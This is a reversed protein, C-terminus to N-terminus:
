NSPHPHYVTSSGCHWRRSYCGTIVSLQFIFRSLSHSRFVVANNVPGPYVRTNGIHCTWQLHHTTTHVFCLSHVYHSATYCQIVKNCHDGRWKSSELPRPAHSHMERIFQAGIVMNRSKTYNLTIAEPSITVAKSRSAARNSGLNCLRRHYQLADSVPSIHRLRHQQGSHGPLSENSQTPQPSPSPRPHHHHHNQAM